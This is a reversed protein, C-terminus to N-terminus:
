QHWDLLLENPQIPTQTLDLGHARKIHERFRVAWSDNSTTLIKFSHVIDKTEFSVVAFDGHANHQIWLQERSIGAEQFVTDHEKNNIIYEDKWKKILENGGALIPLMFCYNAM